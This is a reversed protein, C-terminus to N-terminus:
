HRITSAGIHRVLQVDRPAIRTGDARKGLESTIAASAEVNGAARKQVPAILAAAEMPADSQMARLFRRVFDAREEREAGLLEAANTMGVEPDRVLKEIFAEGNLVSRGSPDTTTSESAHRLVGDDAREIVKRVIRDSYLSNAIVGGLADDADGALSDEWEIGDPQNGKFYTKPTAALVAPAVSWKGGGYSSALIGELEEARASGQSIMYSLGRSTRGNGDAFPHAYLLGGAVTLAAYDLADQDSLTPDSLFGKAVQWTERLLMEKDEHHPVQRGAIGVAAGDFYQRASADGTRVVSAVQQVVDMFDSAEFQGFYDRRQIPDILQENARMLTALDSAYNNEHPLVEEM